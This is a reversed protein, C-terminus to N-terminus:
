KNMIYTIQAGAAMQVYVDQGSKKKKFSIQTTSFINYKSSFPFLFLDSIVVYWVASTQIYRINVQKGQFWSSTQTTFSMFIYSASVRRECVRQWQLSGGAEERWTCLLCLQDEWCWIFYGQWKLNHHQVHTFRYQTGKNFM